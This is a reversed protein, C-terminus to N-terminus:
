KENHILSLLYFHFSQLLVSIRSAPVWMESASITESLFSIEADSLTFRDTPISRVFRVIPATFPYEVDITIHYLITDDYLVRFQFLNSRISPKLNNMEKRIRSQGMRFITPDIRDIIMFSPKMQDRHDSNFELIYRIIEHPLM